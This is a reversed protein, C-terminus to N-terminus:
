LPGLSGSDASPAAIAAQLGVTGGLGQPDPIRALERDEPFPYSQEITRDLLALQRLLEARRHRPLTQM